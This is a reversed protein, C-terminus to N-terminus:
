SQMMEREKKIQKELIYSATASIAVMITELQIQLDEPHWAREDADPFHQTDVAIQVALNAFEQPTFYEPRNTTM